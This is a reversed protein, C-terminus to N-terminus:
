LSHFYSCTTKQQFMVKYDSGEIYFQYCCGHKTNCVNYYGYFYYRATIKIIIIKITQVFNNSKNGGFHCEIYYKKQASHRRSASVCRATHIPGLVSSRRRPLAANRKCAARTAAWSIPSSFSCTTCNVCSRISLLCLDRSPSWLFSLLNLM